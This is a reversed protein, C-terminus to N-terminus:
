LHATFILLLWTAAIGLSNLRDSLTATVIRSYSNTGCRRGLRLSPEETRLQLTGEVLAPGAQSVHRGSGSELWGAVASYKRTLM